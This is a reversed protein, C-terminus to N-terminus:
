HCAVETIGGFQFNRGKDFNSDVKYTIDFSSTPAEFFFTVTDAEEASAMNWPNNKASGTMLSKFTVTGDDNVLTEIKKGAFYTGMGTAMTLAEMGHKDQDIDYFAFFFKSLEVPAGLLSSVFTFRFTTEDSSGMNIQGLHGHKGDKAPDYPEYSGGIKEVWLDIDTGHITGAGEFIMLSAQDTDAGALNSLSVSAHTLDLYAPKTCGGFPAKLLESIGALQFNRGGDGAQNAVELEMTFSSIDKFEAMATKLEQDHNLSWPSTPNDAANGTLNAIFAVGRGPEQVKIQAHPLMYYASIEPFAVIEIGAKKKPDSGDGAVSGADIDLVTMFFRPLKLPEGSGGILEVKFVTREDSLLNITAIGDKVGNNEPHAEYKYGAAVSFKMSISVDGLSGAKTIIMSEEGGDPGLGGLNSHTLTANEFNLLASDEDEPSAAPFWSPPTSSVEGRHQMQVSAGRAARLSMGAVGRPSVGGLAAVVAPLMRGPAFM